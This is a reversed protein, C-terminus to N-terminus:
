ININIYFESEIWQQITLKVGCHIYKTRISNTVKLHIGILKFFANDNNNHVLIDSIM